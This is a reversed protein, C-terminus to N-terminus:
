RNLDGTQDESYKVQDRLFDFVVLFYFGKHLWLWHLDHSAKIQISVVCLDLLLWTLHLSSPEPRLDSTM